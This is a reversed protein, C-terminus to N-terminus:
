AGGLLPDAWIREDEQGIRWFGIGLGRAHAIAMRDGTTRADSYSVDHSV